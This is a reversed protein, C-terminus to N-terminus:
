VKLLSMSKCHKASRVFAVQGSDRYSVHVPQANYVYMRFGHDHLRPIWGDFWAKMAVISDFGFHYEYVRASFVGLDDEPCPRKPDSAHAAHLEASLAWEHV